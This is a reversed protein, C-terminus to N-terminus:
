LVGVATSYAVAEEVKLTARAVSRLFGQGGISVGDPIFLEFDQEEGIQIIQSQFGTIPDTTVTAILPTTNLMADVTDVLCMFATERMPDAADEVVQLILEVRYTMKKWAGPAVGPRVRPMTQRDEHTVNPWVYAWPVPRQIGGMPISQWVAPVELNASVFAQIPPYQPSPLGNVLGKIYQSV